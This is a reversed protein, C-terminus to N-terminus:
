TFFQSLAPIFPAILSMHNSMSSIFKQYSNMFSEKNKNSEMENIAKIIKENNKINENVINRIEEFLEDSSKNIVNM